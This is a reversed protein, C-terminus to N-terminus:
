DETGRNERWAHVLMIVRDYNKLGDHIGQAHLYATYAADRVAPFIDPYREIVKRIARLDNKVGEPLNERIEDFGDPDFARYDAAVYRWYYLLGIYRLYPDAARRCTLYALFNCTGEGGFGQGHSMEHVMVFPLQLHHLGPDVHGEGTFPIYVGATSIRLLIGKPYLRRAHIQEFAPFGLEHLQKHLERALLTELESADYKPPIVQTDNGVLFERAQIVETTALEMESKLEDFSLPRPELALQQELPIRGYNYGWLVLFFFVVAGAFALLSHGASLWWKGSKLKGFSFRRIQLVLWVILGAFLLYVGAFPMWGTLASFMARIGVYLGRSYWQEISAPTLLLRLAVAAVGLVIWTNKSIRM